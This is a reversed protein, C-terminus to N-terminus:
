FIIAIVHPWLNKPEVSPAQDPCSCFSLIAVLELHRVQGELALQLFYICILCVVNSELTQQDKNTIEYCGTQKLYIYYFIVIETCISHLACKGLKFSPSITLPLILSSEKKLAKTSNAGQWLKKWYFCTIKNKLQLLFLFFPVSFICM